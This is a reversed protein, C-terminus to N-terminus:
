NEWKWREELHRAELGLTITKTSQRALSAKYQM